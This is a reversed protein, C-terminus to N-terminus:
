GEETCSQQSSTDSIEYQLSTESEECYPTEKNDKEDNKEFIGDKSITCFFIKDLRRMLQNIKGENGDLHKYWKKPHVPSTIIIKTACLNVFGGKIQLRMEYKDLLRLLMSFPLQGRYEELILSKEGDYGDFWKDNEPGWVYRDDPDTFEFANHSKGTGTDGYYVIVEPKETRKSISLIINRLAQIGKHFKIYTNPHELAVDRIKKGEKIMESVEDIDTRKGQKPPEGDEDYDGEKKCYKIAAEPTSDKSRVEIHARPMYKKLASFTKNDKFYVYGQIHPTKGEEKGEYGMCIYRYKLNGLLELDKETYNNITFVFERYRGEM